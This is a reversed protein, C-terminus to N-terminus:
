TRVLQLGDTFNGGGLLTSYALSEVILADDFSLSANLRLLRTLLTAAIPNQAVARGLQSVQADLRRPDVGVWPAPPDPAVTVLTDFRYAEVLPLSGERDLGVVVTGDGAPRSPAQSLDLVTLPSSKPPWSMANRSGSAPHPQTAM